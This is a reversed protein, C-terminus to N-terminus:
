ASFAQQAADVILARYEDETLVTLERVDVETKYVRAGGHKESEFSSTNIEGRVLVPQDNSLDALHVSGEPRQRPTAQSAGWDDGWDSLQVNANSGRNPRPVVLLVRGNRRGASTKNEYPASFLRGVLTVHNIPNQPM